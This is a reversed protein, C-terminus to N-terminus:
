TEIRGILRMSRAWRLSYGFTLCWTTGTTAIFVILVGGETSQGALDITDSRFVKHNEEFDEILLFNEDIPKQDVSSPQLGFTLIILTILQLM